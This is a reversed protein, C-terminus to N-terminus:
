LSNEISVIKYDNPSLTKFVVKETNLLDIPISNKYAFILDENTKIDKFFDEYPQIILGGIGNSYGIAHAISKISPLLVIIHGNWGFLDGDSFDYITEKTFNTFHELQLFSTRVNCDIKLLNSLLLVLGSCDIGDTPNKLDERTVLTIEESVGETNKISISKKSFSSSKNLLISGGYLYPYVCKKNNSYLNLLIKKILFRKEEKSIKESNIYKEKLTDDSIFIKKYFLRNNKYIPFYIFNDLMVFATGVAFMENNLSIPTINKITSKKNMCPIYKRFLCIEKKSLKYIYKKEIIFTDEKEEISGYSFRPYHFSYFIKDYEEIEIFTNFLLAGSFGMHSSLSGKLISFIPLDYSFALKKSPDDQNKIYIKAHPALVIGYDKALLKISFILLTIYFFSYFRM